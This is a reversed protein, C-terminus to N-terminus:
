PEDIKSMKPKLAAARAFADRAAAARGAQQYAIALNNWWGFQNADIAVAKEYLAIAQQDDNNLLAQYGWYAYEQGIDASFNIYPRAVTGGIMCLLFATTLISANRWRQLHDRAAVTWGLLAGLVCGAGHAGNGVNWTGAATLAICLFFWGVMLQITTRDVADHFRRDLRSLVWLMGFLGYNVGSLGISAGTFAYQAANSGIALLLCVGLTPGHGFETEIQTGFVWLWYLNFLLHLVDAHFLVSTALRWPEHWLLHSNFMFREIDGGSWYRATAIVALVAIGATIPFAPAANLPPPQRM